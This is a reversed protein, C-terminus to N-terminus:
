ASVLPCSASGEDAVFIKRGARDNLCDNVIDVVVRITEEVERDDFGKAMVEKKQRHLSDALAQGLKITKGPRFFLRPFSALVERMRGTFRRDGKRWVMFVLAAWLKAEVNSQCLM